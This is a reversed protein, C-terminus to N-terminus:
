RMLSWERMSSLKGAPDDQCDWAATSTSRM